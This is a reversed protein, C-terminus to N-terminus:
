KSKKANSANGWYAAVNSIDVGSLEIKGKNHKVKNDMIDRILGELAAADEGEWDTAAHCQACKIGAVVRGAELDAAPSSVCWLATLVARVRKSM